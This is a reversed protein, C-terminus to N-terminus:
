QGFLIVYKCFYNLIIVYIPASKNGLYSAAKVIERSWVTKVNIYTSLEFIVGKRKSRTYYSKNYINKFNIDCIWIISLVKTGNVNKNIEM